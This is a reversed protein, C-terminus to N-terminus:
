CCASSEGVLTDLLDRGDGGDERAV